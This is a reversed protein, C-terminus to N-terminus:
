RPLRHIFETTPADWDRTEIELTTPREGLINIVVHGGGEFEITKPSRIRETLGLEGVFYEEAALLAAGPALSTTTEYRM